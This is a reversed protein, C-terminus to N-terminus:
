RGVAASSAQDRMVASSASARPDAHTVRIEKVRWVIAGTTPPGFLDLDPHADVLDAIETRIVAETIRGDREESSPSVVCGTGFGTTVM